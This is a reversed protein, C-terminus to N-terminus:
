RQSGRRLLSRAVSKAWGVPRPALRELRVLLRVHRPRGPITAGSTLIPDDTVSTWRERVLARDVPHRAWELLRAVADPASLRDLVGSEVCWGVVDPPAERAWVWRPSTRNLRALQSSSHGVGDALAVDWVGDLERQSRVSLSPYRRAIRRVQGEPASVTFFAHGSRVAAEAAALFERQRVDPGAGDTEGLDVLIRRDDDGPVLVDAFADVPDREVHIYRQVDDSYTPYRTVIIKEHAARLASRKPGVFSRSGEHFVIAHHAILSSFGHKAVRLCFDNEEGYGPSFVEDFLGFRTILERRILFCFGMSVPVIGYRPLGERLAEHVEESRQRSRGVAPNRLAYPISAITANDSRPCVVGHSESSHLVASLEELFGPTTVTDSNLLLIDNGTGDLELAARNCTGVFGLNRPNRAYSFGPQGGIREQIAAEIRDADPGCDNVLLVRHRQQDVNLLLSDLCATLSPLDGYVPVVVTVPHATSM